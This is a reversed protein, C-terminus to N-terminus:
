SDRRSEGAGNRETYRAAARRTSRLLHIGYGILAIWTVAYAAVIYGATNTEPM